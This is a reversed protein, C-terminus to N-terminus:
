AQAAIKKGALVGAKYGADYGLVAAAVKDRAAKIREAAKVSWKEGATLVKKEAPNKVKTAAKKAEAM